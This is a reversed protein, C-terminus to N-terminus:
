YYYGFNNNHWPSRLIHNINGSHEPFKRRINYYYLTYM